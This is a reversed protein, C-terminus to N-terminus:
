NSTGVTTDTKANGLTTKRIACGFDIRNVNSLGSLIEISDGLAVGALEKSDSSIHGLFRSNRSRDVLNNLFSTSDM